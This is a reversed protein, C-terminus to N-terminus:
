EAPPYRVSRVMRGFPPEQPDDRYNWVWHQLELGVIQAANPRHPARELAAAFLAFAPKPARSLAQVTIRYYANEVLAPLYDELRVRVLNGDPLRGYLRMYAVTGSTNAGSYLRWTTFPFMEVRLWWFLLLITATAATVWPWVRAGPGAARTPGDADASPSPDSPNAAPDTDNDASPRPRRSIFLVQIMELDPFPVNQFFRIGLHMATMLPPFVWRAQRFFLVLFFLSEGLLAALGLVGLCWDPVYRLLLGFEYSTTAPNLTGFYAHYRVNDPHWWLPGGDYVKWWGAQVYAAAILM